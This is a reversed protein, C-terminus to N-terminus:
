VANEFSIVRLSPIAQFSGYTLVYALTLTTLAFKLPHRRTLAQRLCLLTEHITCLSWVKKELFLCEEGGGEVIFPSEPEQRFDLLTPLM